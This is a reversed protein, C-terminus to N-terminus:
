SQTKKVQKKAQYRKKDKTRTGTLDKKRMDIQHKKAACGRCYKRDSRTIIICKRCHNCLDFYSIDVGNLQDIFNQLVNMSSKYFTVVGTEFSFPLTLGDVKFDMRYVKEFDVPSDSFLLLDDFESIPHLKHNKRFEKTLARRPVIENKYYFLQQKFESWIPQLLTHLGRLLKEFDTGEKDEEDADGDLWIPGSNIIRDLRNFLDRAEKKNNKITKSIDQDDQELFDEILISLDRKKKSIM